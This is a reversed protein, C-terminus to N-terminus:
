RAGQGLPAFLECHLDAVEQATLQDSYLSSMASSSALNKGADPEAALERYLRLATDADGQRGAISARMSNACPMPALKEAEQLVQEAEDMQWSEALLHALNWRATPSQPYLQVCKRLVVLAEQWLNHRFSLAGLRALTSEETAASAETLVQMAAPQQGMRLLAEGLDMQVEAMRNVDTPVLKPGDRPSQLRQAQLALRLVLAAGLNDGQELLNGWVTRWRPRCRPRAQPM